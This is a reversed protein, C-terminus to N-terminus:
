RARSSPQFAQFSAKVVPWPRFARRWVMGARLVSTRRASIALALARKPRGSSAGDDGAVLGAAVAEPEVAEEEVVADVVADDVGGADLDVAPHPPGLGVGQVGDLERFHEDPEMVALGLDPPDDADRGDLVLVAALPVALQDLQLGLAGLVGVPDLAQQRGEAQIGQHVDLEGPPQLAQPLPVARRQRRPDRRPDEALELAPLLDVRLDPRQGVLLPTRHPVVGLRLHFQHPPQQYRSRNPELKRYIAHLGPLRESPV